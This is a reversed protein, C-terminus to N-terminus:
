ENARRHPHLQRHHSQPPLLRLFATLQHATPSPRDRKLCFEQDDEIKRLTNINVKYKLEKVIAKADKSTHRIGYKGRPVMKKESFWVLMAEIDQGKEPPSNSKVIMDGRSIDIEDELTVTCSMPAFAEELDGDASHIAKVKTSFGSPQVTVEDGPKFVGGAVRGAYGRFDHYEDSHPRIVWQVPFRAQVHNHDAGIYVNELHYLLTSGDYWDMNTSKDVVNDGQLASIPIFSVDVLNDLRSAFEKFKGVIDEYVEQSYDVLDM